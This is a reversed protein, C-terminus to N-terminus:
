LPGGGTSRHSMRCGKNDDDQLRARKSRPNFAKAVNATHIMVRSICRALRSSVNTSCAFSSSHQSHINCGRESSVLSVFPVRLFRPEDCRPPRSARIASTHHMIAVTGPGDATALVIGARWVHMQPQQPGGRHSQPSWTWRCNCRRRDRHADCLSACTWLGRRIWKRVRGDREIWWGTVIVM